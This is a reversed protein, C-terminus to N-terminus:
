PVASGDGAHTLALPSSQTMPTNNGCLREGRLAVLATEVGRRQGDKQPLPPGVQVTPQVRFQVPLVLRRGLLMLPAEAVPPPAVEPPADLADSTPVASDGPGPEECDRPPLLGTYALRIQMTAYLCSHPPSPSINGPCDILYHGHPSPFTPQKGSSCGSSCGVWMGAYSVCIVGWGCGNWVELVVPQFVDSSPRGVHVEVPVSVSAGPLLPMAAALMAAAGAGPELHAGAASAPMRGPRPGPLPKLLQGRANAVALQKVCGVAASGVNTLM